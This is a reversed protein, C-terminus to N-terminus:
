HASQPDERELEAMRRFQEVINPSTYAPDLHRYVADVNVAIRGFEGLTGFDPRARIEAAIERTAEWADVGSAQLKGAAGDVFALYDRVFAVGAKDTIPGHGAVVVDIDMGLMLDCAAVWNSLPGAWVIPTGGIFLIDGTYVTRADPVYALTDGSTHAPGVEILEVQRGGVDLDMRGDFTRDPVRLEIGEFDFAGFFSRFMDGVDGPATNLGALLSPPVESMEHATATSSIIEADDVLINGFCHDGNAHTNVVQAIPSARTVPEMSDLMQRTLKLDFLTDVLLSVGDGVILGANSWGWSGDPQLYAHCGDAVEHLGVSYKASM